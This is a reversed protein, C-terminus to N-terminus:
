NGIRLIVEQRIGDQEEPTPLHEDPIRNLYRSPMKPFLLSLAINVALGAQHQTSYTGLHFRQGGRFAQATFKSRSRRVGKYGPANGRRTSYPLRLM